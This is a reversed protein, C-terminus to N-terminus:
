CIPFVRSSMFSCFRKCYEHPPKASINLDKTKKGVRLFTIKALKAAREAKKGLDYKQLIDIIRIFYVQQARKAVTRRSGPYDTLWYPESSHLVGALSTDADMQQSSGLQTPVSPGMGEPAANHIGLLLSYDMLGNDSLFKTDRRIQKILRERLAPALLLGGVMPGQEEALAPIDGATTPKPSFSSQTTSSLTENNSLDVDAPMAETATATPATASTKPWYLELFNKDKLVPVRIPEEDSLSTKQKTKVMRAVTSGKLDFIQDLRTLPEEKHVTYVAAKSTTVPFCTKASKIEASHKLHHEELM